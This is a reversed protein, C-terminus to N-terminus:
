LPTELNSDNALDKHVSTAAENQMQCVRYGDPGETQCQPINFLECITGGGGGGAELGGEWDLRVRLDLGIFVDASECDVSDSCSTM